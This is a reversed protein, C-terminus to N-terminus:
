IEWCLLLQTPWSVKHESYKWYCEAMCDHLEPAGMKAGGEVRM